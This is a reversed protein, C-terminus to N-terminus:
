FVRPIGEVDRRGPGYFIEVPKAPDEAPAQKVTAAHPFGPLLSRTKEPTSRIAPLTQASPLLLLVDRQGPPADPAHV